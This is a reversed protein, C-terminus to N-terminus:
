ALTREDIGWIRPTALELSNGAPDRFYLSKGGEPWVITQEIAVNHQGLWREWDPLEAERVGFAVHGGGFSGHPPFQGDSERSGLPNFLLVMRQGCRLFVHRGEQRSVFQLGLTDVYFREARSLDDVYLCTELVNTANMAPRGGNRHQRRVCAALKKRTSCIM